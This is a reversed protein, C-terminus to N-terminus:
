YNGVIWEKKEFGLEGGSVGKGGMLTKTRALELGVVVLIMVNCFGFCECSRTFIMQIIAV